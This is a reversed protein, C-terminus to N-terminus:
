DPSRVQGTAEFETVGMNWCIQLESHEALLWAALNDSTSRRYGVYSTCLRPNVEVISAQLEKSSNQAVVIDAGVYGSFDSLAIALKSAVLSIADRLVPECPIQGGSYVPQGNQLRLNQLAPSLVTSSAVGRGGIFGVSCPVGPIYQQLLWPRDDGSLREDTPLLEEEFLHIFSIGECGVGDRPKLIGLGANMPMSKEDEFLSACDRSRRLRDYEAATIAKTAPTPLGHRQLWEFTRLKDTFIEALQWSVNLNPVAQWSGTQLHRLLSILVGGSEPAIVMTAAFSEPVRQPCALWEAPDKEISLVTIGAPWQDSSELQVRADSAVLVVPQVDPLRSFDSVLSVLMSIAERQMSVSTKRWAGPSALLYEFILISRRAAM